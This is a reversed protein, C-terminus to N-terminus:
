GDRGSEQAGRGRGAGGEWAVPMKIVSYFKFGTHCMKKEPFNETVEIILENPVPPAIGSM